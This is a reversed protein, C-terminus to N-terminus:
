LISDVRAFGFEKGGVLFAFVVEIFYYVLGSGNNAWFWQVYQEFMQNLLIEIKYVVQARYFFPKYQVGPIVIRYLFNGPPNFFYVYVLDSCVRFSDKWFDPLRNWGSFFGAIILPCRKEHFRFPQKKKLRLWAAFTSRVMRKVKM